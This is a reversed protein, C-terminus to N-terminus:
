TGKYFDSNMKLVDSNYWVLAEGFTLKINIAKCSINNIIATTDLDIIETVKIMSEAQHDKSLAEKSNLQWAYHLSDVPNYVDMGMELGTNIEAAFQNAKYHNKQRIFGQDGVVEKLGEDWEDQSLM